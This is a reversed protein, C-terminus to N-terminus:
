TPTVHTSLHPTVHSEKKGGWVCECVCPHLAPSHRLSKGKWLCQRSCRDVGGKGEKSEIEGAGEGGGNQNTVTATATPIKCNAATVTSAVHTARLLKPAGRADSLKHEVAQSPEQDDRWSWQLTDQTFLVPRRKTYLALRRGSLPPWTVTSVNLSQRPSVSTSLRM